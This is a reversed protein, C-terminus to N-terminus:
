KIKKNIIEKLKQMIIKITAENRELYDPEVFFGDYSIKNRIVRLKDMFSIEYETFEKYHKELYKILTKHSLTKYGDICLIATILEKIVDYYGETIPSSFEKKTMALMKEKTEAMKLLSKAKEKDKTIKILDEM